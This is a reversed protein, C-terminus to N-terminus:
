RRAPRHRTGTKRIFARKPENRRWRGLHRRRLFDEVALVLAAIGILAVVSDMWSLSARYIWGAAPLAILVTGTIVAVWREIREHYGNM